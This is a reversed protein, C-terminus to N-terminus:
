ALETKAIAKAKGINQSMSVLSGSAMIEAMMAAM